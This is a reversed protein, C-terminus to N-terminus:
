VRPSISVPTRVGHGRRRALRSRNAGSMKKLVEDLTGLRDVMGAKRAAAADLTGGVLGRLGRDLASLVAASPIPARSARLAEMADRRIM